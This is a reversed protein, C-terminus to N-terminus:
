ISTSLSQTNGLTVILMPTVRTHAKRQALESVYFSLFYSLNMKLRLM